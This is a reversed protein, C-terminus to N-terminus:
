SLKSWKRRIEWDSVQKPRSAAQREKFAAWKGKVNSHQVLGNLEDGWVNVYKTDLVQFMADERGAFKKLLKPIQDMKLPNHEKYFETLRLEYTAPPPRTANFNELVEDLNPATESAATRGALLALAALCLRTAM